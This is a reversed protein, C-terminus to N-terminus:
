NVSMMRYLCEATDARTLQLSGNVNGDESEFIGLTYMAYVDNRAWVPVTDIDEFVCEESNSYIGLIRAMIQSAEYKTVARNPEFVLGGEGFSGDIIGLRQATAVYGVLSAPIKDNDDFFTTTLTSDAKIGQAKLAMAVFEARTVTEDPMFYTDDGVIKGSMIGLASMAVAANYESRDTMDNYVVSSMRETTKISVTVAESYNGYEDRAVYVFEDYGTFDAEPTYRYGGSADTLKLTGNKPYLVVLFEMQDGEPDSARMKGYVAIEEQTSLSLSAATDEPAEPAYNIKDIFKMQCKCDAGGALDDIKFQFSAETVESSLPVFVLSAINKRKIEQGEKVRRGGYLLTGEQTSPLSVVTLKKFDSIAFASKFDTDSFTMKQGLLGTKIVKAEEAMVEVGVGFSIAHSIIGFCGILMTLLLLITLTKKM